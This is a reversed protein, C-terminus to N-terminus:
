INNRYQLSFVISQYVTQYIKPKQNKNLLIVDRSVVKGKIIVHDKIHYNFIKLCMIIDIVADSLQVFHGVM